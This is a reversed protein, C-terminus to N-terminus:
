PSKPALPVAAAGKAQADNIKKLAEAAAARVDKDDPPAEALTPVAARAAAAVQGPATGARNGAAAEPPSSSPRSLRPGPPLRSITLM